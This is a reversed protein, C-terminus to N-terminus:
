PRGTLRLMALSYVLAGLSTALLAAYPGLIGAVLLATVACLAASLVRLAIALLTLTDSLAEIWGVVETLFVRRM